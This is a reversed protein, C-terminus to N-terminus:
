VFLFENSAEVGKLVSVDTDNGLVGLLFHDSSIFFTEIDEVM